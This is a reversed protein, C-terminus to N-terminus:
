KIKVQYSLNIKSHPLVKPIVFEIANYDKAQASRKKGKKDVIFLEKAPHFSKANDVSYRVSFNVKSSASNPIYDVNKDIKNVIRVNELAKNSNNVITNVYKITDKPIVKTPKLWKIAKKGNKTIVIAKKYSTTFIKVEKDVSAKASIQGSLLFLFSLALLIKKM